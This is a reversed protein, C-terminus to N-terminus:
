EGEPVAPSEAPEAMLNEELIGQLKAATEADNVLVYDGEASAYIIIDLGNACFGSLDEYSLCMSYILLMLRGADRGEWAVGAPKDDEARGVLLLSGEELRVVVQVNEADFEESLYSGVDPDGLFDLRSLVTYLAYFGEDAFAALPACLLAAALLLTMLKKM